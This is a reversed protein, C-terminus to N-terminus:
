GRIREIVNVIVPASSGTGIENVALCTYWGKHEFDINSITLSPSIPLSGSYGTENGYITKVLGSNNHIWFVAQVQLNSEVVCEIRLSEENEVTYSPKIIVVSPM